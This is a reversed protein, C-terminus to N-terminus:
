IDLFLFKWTDGGPKALFSNQSGAKSETGEIRRAGYLDTNNLIREAAFARAFSTVDLRPFVEAAYADGTSTTKLMDVLEFLNTFDHASGKVARKQFTQRYRALKKVGGTTLLPILTPENNSRQALPDDGFEYWYGIRYLDGLDSDADPYWEDLFGSNQRQTDEYILGRQQGNIFMTIPRRNLAPIGMQGVLWYGTSENQCTRDAGFLGPEQIRLSTEDLLADDAPLLLQYDCNTGLPGDYLKSHAPSGAYHSGANYIIRYNGYVFTGKFAESSIKDAVYWDDLTSKTMWFRYSAFSAVPQTDGVRVLCERAPADNPFKTTRALSNSDRATIYFAILDNDPQGSLGPIVGTYIGDGAIADSGTGNDVMAVGNSQGYPDVRWSLIVSAIGDPDHVRATVVIPQNPAPLVPSHAVETMAPGANTVYRSNRAGPTGLNTPVNMIGPVELVNGRLRFLIEPRGHLWKVRATITGTPFGNTTYTTLLPKNIRNAGTDGRDQAVVHLATASADGGGQLFSYRHNGQLMWATPGTGLGGSEFGNNGVINGAPTTGPITVNLNDVLCEGAELLWFQLANWLSGSGGANDLTGSATITSWV